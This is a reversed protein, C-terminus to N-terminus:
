GRGVCVAMGKCVCTSAVRVTRCTNQENGIALMKCGGHLICQKVTAIHLDATCYALVGECLACVLFGAGEPNLQLGNVSAALKAQKEPNTSVV